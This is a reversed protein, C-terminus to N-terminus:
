PFRVSSVKKPLQDVVVKGETKVLVPILAKHRPISSYTPQPIFTTFTTTTPRVTTNGRAPTGFLLPAAAHKRFLGRAFHESPSTPKDFTKM